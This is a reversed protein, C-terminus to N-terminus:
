RGSTAPEVASRERWARALPLHRSRWGLDQCLVTVTELDAAVLRAWLSKDASHQEVVAAAAEAIQALVQASVEVLHHRAPLQARWCSLDAEAKDEAEAWTRCGPLHAAALLRMLVGLDVDVTAASERM